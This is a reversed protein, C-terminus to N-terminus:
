NFKYRQYPFQSEVSILTACYSRFSHCVNVSICLWEPLENQASYNEFYDKEVQDISDVEDKLSNYTSYSQMLNAKIMRVDYYGLDSEKDPYYDYIASGKGSYSARFLPKDDELIDEELSGHSAESPYVPIRYQKDNVILEAITTGYISLKCEYVGNENISLEESFSADSPIISYSRARVDITDRLDQSIQVQIITDSPPGFSIDSEIQRQGCALVCISLIIFSYYGVRLKM